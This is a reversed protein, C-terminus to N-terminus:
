WLSPKHIKHHAFKRIMRIASDATRFVPIGAAELAEVMPDYLKGCDVVAVFPKNYEAKVKILRQVISDEDEIDEKHGEGKPLTQMMWTLPVMSILGFDVDDEELIARLSLDYIECSAMPTLDLPNHVEQIQDIKNISMAKRIKEVTEDSFKGLKLTSNSGELNDAMGVAEFGANSVLGVRDGGINKGYTFSIFKVVDEFEDFNHPMIVGVKELVSKCVSYDGAISSTHGSAATKGAASRGAKYLIVYRGSDIIKRATKAFRVGDLDDFGEIYVAFVKIEEDDALVEIYDTIALDMQNGTTISYLPNISRLKDLRCIMFAGSQSLYATNRIGGEPRLDMKYEPIFLTDYKGPLSRMGMCNGGNFVPTPKGARRATYITDLTEEELKEGSKTEGLGGSIVIVSKAYEKEVIEKTIPPLMPAPLTYVFLDVKEPLAELSPYCKVGEIEDAGEKIIYLRKPDFGNKIINNLIIHGINMKQSVGIIAISEPKLLNHIRELPKEPLNARKVEGFRALADIALLKGKVVAFPNVEMEEIVFQADPNVPSYRKGIEAFGKILEGVIKDDVLKKKSRTKGALKKYVAPIQVMKEIAEDDLMEASYTTVAQREKMLGAWFETDVGGAGYTIVPGFERSNQLGLLVEHGFMGTRYEVFESIVVGRIDGAVEAMIDCAPTEKLSDPKLHPKEELWRVFNAPVQSYIEDIAERIAEANNAPFKVGQVDTKHLISPSVVKVVIKEGKFKKDLGAPLDEDKKVFVKEAGKIGFAALFDYAEPELLFRRGDDWAAKLISDAKKYDIAM